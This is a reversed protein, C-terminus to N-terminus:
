GKRKKEDPVGGTGARDCRQGTDGVGEGLAGEGGHHARGAGALARQEVTGGPQVLGGRTLDEQGTRRQVPQVLGRQGLETAFVDGEHELREVEGILRGTRQVRLGCEFYQRQQPILRTGGALRDHHDGM